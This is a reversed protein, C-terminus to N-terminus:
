DINSYNDFDCSLPIILWCTSKNWLFLLFHMNKAEYEFVRVLTINIVNNRINKSRCQKKYKQFLMTEKSIMQNVYYLSYWWVTFVNWWTPEGAIM